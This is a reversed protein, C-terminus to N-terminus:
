FKSCENESFLDSCNSEPHLTFVSSLTFFNIVDVKEPQTHTLKVICGLPPFENREREREKERKRERETEREREREIIILYLLVSLSSSLFLPSSPPLSLNQLFLLVLSRVAFCAFNTWLRISFVYLVFFHLALKPSSLSSLGSKYKERSRLTKSISPPGPLLMCTNKREKEV